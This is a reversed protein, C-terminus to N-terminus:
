HEDASETGSNEAEDEGPTHDQKFLTDCEPHDAEPETHDLGSMGPEYVLGAGELENVETSKHADEISIEFLVQSNSDVSQQCSRPEDESNASELLDNHRSEVSSTFMEDRCELMRGLTEDPPVFINTETQSQKLAEPSIVEGIQEQGIRATNIDVTINNSKKSDLVAQKAMNQWLAHINLMPSSRDSTITRRLSQKNFSNISSLIHNLRPTDDAELAAFLENKM